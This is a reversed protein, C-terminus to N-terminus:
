RSASRLLPRPSSGCCGGMVAATRGAGGGAGESPLPSQRVTSDQGVAASFRVRALNKQQRLCVSGQGAIRSGQWEGALELIRQLDARACGNRGNKEADRLAQHVLDKVLIAQERHSKNSPPAPQFYFSIACDASGGQFEALERIDERTIM